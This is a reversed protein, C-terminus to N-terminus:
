SATQLGATEMERSWKLCPQSAHSKCGIIVGVHLLSDGGGQLYKISIEQVTLYLRQHWHPVYASMDITVLYLDSTYGYSIYV